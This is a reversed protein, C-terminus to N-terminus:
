YYTLTQECCTNKQHRFGPKNRYRMGEAGMVDTKSLAEVDFIIEWICATLPM